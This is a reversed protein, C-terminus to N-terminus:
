SEQTRRVSLNYCKNEIGALNEVVQIFGEPECNTGIRLCPPKINFQAAEEYLGNNMQRAGTWTTPISTRFGCKRAEELIVMLEKDEAVSLLDDPVPRLLDAMIIDQQGMFSFYSGSFLRGRYKLQYNDSTAASLHSPKCLEIFRITGDYVEKDLNDLRERDILELLVQPKIDGM